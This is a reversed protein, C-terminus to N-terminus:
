GISHGCRVCKWVTKRKYTIPRMCHGRHNSAYIPIMASSERMTGGCPRVNVEHPRRILEICTTHTPM